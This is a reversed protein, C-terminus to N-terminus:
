TAVGVGVTGGTPDDGRRWAATGGTGSVGAGAGGRAKVPVRGATARTGTATGTARAVALIDRVVTLPRVVAPARPAPTNTAGRRERVGAGGSEGAHRRAVRRAIAAPSTSYRAPIDRMTHDM